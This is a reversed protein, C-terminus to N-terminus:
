SEMKSLPAISGDQSQTMLQGGLSQYTSIRRLFLQRQSGLSQKQLTFLKEQANLVDLYGQMGRTYRISEVQLIKEAQETQRRLSNLQEQQSLEELINVEVEELASLVGQTYDYFARLSDNEAREQEAALKGANFLPLELQAGLNLRWIDFANSWDSSAATGNLSINPLRAASAESVSEQSSQYQYWLARVDPRRELVQAPIGTDPLSPLAPFDAYTWDVASTPTRGLLVNMQKELIALRKQAQKEQAILSELLQEQRWMASISGQGTRYRHGTIETITQTNSIQKELIVLSQQQETLQYWVRAINGALFQATAQMQQEQALYDLYAAQARARNKGWIDLEWKANLAISESSDQTIDGDVMTRQRWANAGMGADVSPYQDASRIDAISAAREVRAISSQLNFNTELASKILGDLTPDQFEGWWFEDIQESGTLSFSAPVEPTHIYQHPAEAACGSLLAILVSAKLINMSTKIPM